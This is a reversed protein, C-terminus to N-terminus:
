ASPQPYHELLTPIAPNRKFRDYAQSGFEVAVPAIAVALPRWKRRRAARIFALAALLGLSGVVLDPERSSSVLSWAPSPSDPSPDAIVHFLKPWAARSSRRRLSWPSREREPSM